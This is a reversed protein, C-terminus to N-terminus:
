EQRRDRKDLWRYYGGVVPLFWPRGDYFPVPVKPLDLTAYATNARGDQLIRQAVQTGLYTLMGVGSGNCGLCYHLGKEQGMHPLFDNTFAVLGSWSHTIKTGKLQPFRDTMMQHLLPGSVDPGVQTFRARGGYIMRTGDPSMRYYCLVRPTESITRGNPILSAALDAPLKETAIIHSAVPILRKRLGPTLAGTYGNTAVIVQEATCDGKSTHVTFNGAAGEIGTVETQACLRVGARHAAELLGKHFLAPHLKASKRIVIGGHYFDSAIESRQEARSLVTAGADTVRNILEAKAEFGEFHQATYAGLFRGTKEFHCDINERAVLTEVLDLSAASEVMLREILKAHDDGKAAQGPTGSIGKGLNIGASLGGGNRTSAGEGFRDKEVVTATRGNRALELAASLGAYGSGVILVETSSPLDGAHDTGPRAAEWWYPEPVYDPHFLDSDLAM